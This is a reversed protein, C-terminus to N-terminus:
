APPSDKTDRTLKILISNNQKRAPVGVQQARTPLENYLGKDGGLEHLHATKKFQRQNQISRRTKTSHTRPMHQERCNITSGQTAVSNMCTPLATTKYECPLATTKDDFPMATTKHDCNRPTPRPCSCAHM